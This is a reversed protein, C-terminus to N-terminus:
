KRLAAGADDYIAAVVRDLGAGDQLVRLAKFGHRKLLTGVEEAQDCGIELYIAAGKKLYKGCESAIRRYFELGDERGDLAMRPEFDRVEPELRLIAQTPIYPPNAVLLDFKAGERELAEFLDGQALEVPCFSGQEGGLLSECNKGAMKLAEKSLDTATIQGYKGLRALSLAICGSGTCLELVREGAGPHEKLVAEVLTETDQRPILVHPSVFFSLGMFEQTGLIQQLPVRRARERIMERYRGAMRHNEETDALERGRDMLFHAMDTCFAELLLYKADLDPEPVGKEKLEERGSLLLSQLTEKM